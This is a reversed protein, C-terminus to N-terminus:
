LPNSVGEGDIIHLINKTRTVAVYWVQYEPGPKAMAGDLVRQTMGNIIIVKDHQKGKAGHITSLEVDGAKSFDVYRYYDLLFFPVDLALNAPMGAIADLDNDNIAKVLKPTAIAKLRSMDSKTPLYEGSKINIWAQVGKGFKSHCPSTFGNLTTYAIKHYILQEEVPKRLAHNRYLILAKGINKWDYHDVTMFRQISGEIATPFYNKEYRDKVQEIIDRSMRHAKIPVRFSQNLEQIEADTRRAWEIMAKPDAGGWTFLAQDPDGTVLIHKSNASIKNILKWQKKSLDQAEDILLVPFTESTKIEIAKTLMDNFDILGYSKKWYNYNESFYEFDDRNGPRGKENYAWMIPMCNASAYDIVSMYEDGVELSDDNDGYPGKMPINVSESFQKLEKYSIVSERSISAIRYALSHITSANIKTSGARDAIEKAAVKTHSLITIDHPEIGDKILGQVYEVLNHTKGTGPNGLVLKKGM